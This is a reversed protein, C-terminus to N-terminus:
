NANKIEKLWEKPVMNKTSGVVHYPFGYQEAWDSYKTKSGKYLTNNRQFILRIDLEPHEEKVALMKSRDTPSFFGKVEIVIEREWFAKKKPCAVIFDPKYNRKVIYSLKKTEYTFTLKEGELMEAVAAELKSRYKGTKISKKSYRRRTM